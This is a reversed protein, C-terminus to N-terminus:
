PAEVEVDCGGLVLLGTPGPNWSVEWCYGDPDAVYGSYGGWERQRGPQVLRGGARVADALARDVEAPGGVNHALTIPALTGVPAPEGVEEVFGARSWLSLIVRDAVRIMLIDGPIDLEPRWGLGDVYFARAAAVDAVALTVFCLRQEM